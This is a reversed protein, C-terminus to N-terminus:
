VDVLLTLKGSQESVVKVTVVLGVSSREAEAKVGGPELDVLAEGLNKSFPDLVRQCLVIIHIEEISQLNTIEKINTSHSQPHNTNTHHYYYNGKVRLMNLHQCEPEAGTWSTTM